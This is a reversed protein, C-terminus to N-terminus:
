LQLYGLMKESTWRLCFPVFMDVVYSLCQAGNMSFIASSVSLNDKHPVPLVSCSTSIVGQIFHDIRSLFVCPLFHSSVSTLFHPHCAPSLSALVPCLVWPWLVTDTAVLRVRASLVQHPEKPFTRPRSKQKGEVAPVRLELFAVLQM